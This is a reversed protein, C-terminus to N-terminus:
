GWVFGVIGSRQYKARTLLTLVLPMVGDPATIARSLSVTTSLTVVSVISPM